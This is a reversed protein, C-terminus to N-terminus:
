SPFIYFPFKNVIVINNRICTNLESILKGFIFLYDHKMSQDLTQIIEVTVKNFAFNERFPHRHTFHNTYM